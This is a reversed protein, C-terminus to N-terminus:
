EMDIDLFRQPNERLIVDIQERLIGEERMMPVIHTLVHDYGWGGYRHLLTKLCVDCSILINSLCGSDILEKLAKVREIDRAFVGGAFGRYRKDIFYEKGFNDFEFYAGYDAIKRCYEVDIEVDVHNISVKGPNVGNTLLIELVELGKKAWPYTHVIIGAGTTKHAEAAAILVKKENPLIERSTGIEGIVGAQIDSGNIGVTIERVMEGAIEEVTKVDMDPPHTDFTYYGCGAVIHLGTARSIRKLAEPDRGIARSTADVVADGGAKKFELLEKEALKTDNLVLNDRVAYPDRSLVDLNKISVKQEALARRTAEPFETFQNRIDVLVHEHPSVVGLKDSDVIGQVTIVAM